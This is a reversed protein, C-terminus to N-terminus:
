CLSDFNDDLLITHYDICASAVLRFNKFPIQLSILNQNSLQGGGNVGEEAGTSIGTGTSWLRNANSCCWWRPQPQWRNDDNDDHIDAATAAAAGNNNRHSHHYQHQM